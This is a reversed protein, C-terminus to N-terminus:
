SALLGELERSFKSVIHCRVFFLRGSFCRSPLIYISSIYFFFLVYISLFIYKIDQINAYYDFILLVYFLIYINHTM